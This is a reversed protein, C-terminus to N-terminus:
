VLKISEVPTVRGARWAPYLGALLTVAIIGVIIVVVSDPYIDARLVPEMAAGAIEMDSDGVQGSLDLGTNKLWYYFPATALGGAILGSVALWLSEWIVLRFLRFPSFGIAILIGFERLREMVSVFITNFIGAAILILLFLEMFQLGVIKMTIFTALDPSTTSWTLAAAEPRVVADLRAAVEDAARYDNIFAAVHTAEDPEYGLVERVAGIPMLCLTADATPAGTEIIGVVRALGTAIEGSKNTLTYVVKRKLKTELNEALKAGLIIGKEDPSEFMRGESISDYMAFTTADEKTPDLAVFRAGYTQGATTLMTNGVIRVAVRDVSPDGLVKEAMAEVHTVTRKLSPTDLYEPHQLTVHGTGMSAALNVVERWRWDAMATWCSSFMTGFGIAVLTIITRRRHRWLNRWAM